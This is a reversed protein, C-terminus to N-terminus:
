QQVVCHSETHTPSTPEIQPWDHVPPPPPPPQVGFQLPLVQPESPQPPEHPVQGEPEVQLELPWHTEEHVGDHEPLVQPESPQPPLQPEHALPWLQVAPTHWLPPPPPEVQVWGIQEVPLM